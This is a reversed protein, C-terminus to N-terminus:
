GTELRISETVQFNSFDVEEEEGDDGDEAASAVSSRARSM